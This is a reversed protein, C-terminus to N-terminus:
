KGKGKGKAAGKAAAGTAKKAPVSTKKTTGGVKSIGKKGAPLPKRPTAAGAPGDADYVGM